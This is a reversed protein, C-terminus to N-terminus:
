YCMGLRQTLRRPSTREIDTQEGVNEEYCNLYQKLVHMGGGWWKRNGKSDGSYVILMGPKKKSHEAAKGVEM